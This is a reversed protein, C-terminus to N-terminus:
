TTPDEHKAHESGTEMPGTRKGKQGGAIGIDVEASTTGVDGPLGERGTRDEHGRTVEFGGAPLEVRNGKHVDKPESM